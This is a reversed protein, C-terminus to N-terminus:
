RGVDQTNTEIVPADIRSSSRGADMPHFPFINTATGVRTESKMLGGGVSERLLLTKDPLTIFLRTRPAECPEGGRRNWLEPTAILPVVIPPNIRVRKLGVANGEKSPNPTPEEKVHTLHM